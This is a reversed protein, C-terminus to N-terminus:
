TGKPAPYRQELIAIKLSYEDALLPHEALVVARKSGENVPMDRPRKEAYPGCQGQLWVLSGVAVPMKIASM